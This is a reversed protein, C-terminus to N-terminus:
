IGFGAGELRCGSGADRIRLGQVQSMFSGVGSVRFRAGPLQSLHRCGGAYRAHVASVNGTADEPLIRVGLWLGSIAHPSAWASPKPLM